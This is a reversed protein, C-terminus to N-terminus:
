KRIAQLLKTYGDAERLDCWQWRRLERPPECADLLVPVVYRTSRPRLDAQELAYKIERQVEGTKTTARPSLCVVVFDASEIAEDIVTRWEDGPLLNDHDLWVLVGDARLRGALARVADCDERAYSLFVAPLPLTVARGVIPVDGLDVMTPAGPMRVQVHLHGPRTGMAVMVETGQPLQHRANKTIIREVVDEQPRAPSTLRFAAHAGDRVSAPAHRSAQVASLWGRGVAEVHIRFERNVFKHLDTGPAYTESRWGRPARPDPVWRRLTVRRAEVLFELADVLTPWDPEEVRLSLDPITAAFGDPRAERLAETLIRAQLIEIASLPRDNDVADRYRAAAVHGGLGCTDGSGSLSPAMM